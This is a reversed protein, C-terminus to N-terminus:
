SHCIQSSASEWCIFPNKSYKGGDGGRCKDILSSCDRTKIYNISLPLRLYKNPLSGEPIEILEKLVEKNHSSRAFYIRSKGKNVCLSTNLTLKHLLIEGNRFSSVDARTVLLLDDAFLLHSVM